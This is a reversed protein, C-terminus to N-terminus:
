APRGALNKVWRLQRATALRHLSDPRGFANGILKKQSLLKELTQGWREASTGLRELIGSVDRRMRSKGERHLRATWDVLLLYSRLSFGAVLGPRKSGRDRRDDIPCLWHSQELEAIREAKSPDMEKTVLKAIAGHQRCHEVRAHVSTHPSDEPTESVGAALPNLDVYACTALLSEEDLIAISKFRAAWFAGSVGDEKNARRALPEKLCKMFWSLSALRSRLREARPQDDPTSIVIEEPNDPVNALGAGGPYLKTWRELIEQDTWSKARDPDLQVVVHLHSDLVSYGCVEIAFISALQELRQEIWDKRHENGDGCLHAHRVCRSICHYLRTVLPDVLLKRPTPM